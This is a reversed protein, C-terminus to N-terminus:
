EELNIGKEKSFRILRELMDEERNSIAYEMKKIIHPKLEENPITLLLNYIEETGPWNFDLFWDLMEYICDKVDPYGREKLVRAAIWFESKNLYEITFQKCDIESEALKKITESYDREFTNLLCRYNEPSLEFLEKATKNIKDNLKNFKLDKDFDIEEKESIIQSLKKELKEYEKLKENM